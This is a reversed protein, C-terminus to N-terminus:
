NDYDNEEVDSKRVIEPGLSDFDKAEKKRRMKILVNQFKTVLRPILLLATVAAGIVSLVDLLRKKM